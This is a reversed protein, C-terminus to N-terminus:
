GRQSYGGGVWHQSPIDGSARGQRDPDADVRRLCDNNCFIVSTITDCAPSSPAATSSWQIRGAAITLDPINTLHTPISSTGTGTVDGTLTIPGGGGLGGISLGTFDLDYIAATSVAPKTVAHTKTNYQVSASGQGYVSNGIVLLLLIVRKM